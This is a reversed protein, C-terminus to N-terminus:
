ATNFKHQFFRGLKKSAILIWIPINAIPISWIIHELAFHFRLSWGYAVGAWVYWFPATISFLISFFALTKRMDDFPQKTLYIYFYTGIIGHVVGVIISPIWPDYEDFHVFHLFITVFFVTLIFNIIHDIKM